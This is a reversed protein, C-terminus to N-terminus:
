FGAPASHCVAEINIGDPDRVFAGYYNEHYRRLGPAGNDTGGAALAAAHFADVQERSQAIFAFHTADGVRANGVIWFLPKYQRGFGHMRGRTKQQEGGAEANEPAISHLLKLGLPALAAEYFRRSRAEDSVGINLHDIITDEFPNM